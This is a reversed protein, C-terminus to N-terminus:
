YKQKEPGLDSAYTQNLNEQWNPGGAQKLPKPQLKLALSYIVPDKAANPKM